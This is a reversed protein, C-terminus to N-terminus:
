RKERYHGVAEDVNIQANYISLSCITAGLISVVLSILTMSTPKNWDVMWAVISIFAFIVSWALAAHFGAKLKWYDPWDLLVNSKDKDPFLLRRGSIFAWGCLAPPLMVLSKLLEDPLKVSVFLALVYSSYLSEIAIGSLLVVMEYSVVFFRITEIFKKM